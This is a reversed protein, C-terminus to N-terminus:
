FNIQHGKLLRGQFFSLSCLFLGVRRRRHWGWNRRNLLFRSAGGWNSFCKVRRRWSGKKRRSVTMCLAFCLAQQFLKLTTFLQFSWCTLSSFRSTIKLCWTPRGFMKRQSSCRQIQEYKWNCIQLNRHLLQIVSFGHYLVSCWRDTDWSRFHWDRGGSVVVAKRQVEATKTAELQFM